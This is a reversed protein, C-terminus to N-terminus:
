QEGPSGKVTDYHAAAMILRDDPTGYNIGPIIYIYNIGHFVESSGWEQFNTSCLFSGLNMSFPKMLCSENEGCLIVSLYSLLVILNIMKLICKSYLIRLLTETFDGAKM